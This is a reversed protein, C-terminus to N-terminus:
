IKLLDLTQQDAEGYCWHELARRFVTDRIGAAEAFLTMSSRFKLDDPSGFIAHLSRSPAALVAETAERLRAGLLPHDLYQKAEDLSALGFLDAMASRGLGKLQPFIFWMWHGWKRGAKLEALADAYVATQAAEFRKPSFYTNGVM